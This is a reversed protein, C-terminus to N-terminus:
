GSIAALVRTAVEGASQPQQGTILRGDVEVHPQFPAGASYAAGRKRMEDEISLPLTGDLNGSLKEEANSFGTVRRGSLLDTGSSLKVNVLAATGHCIAAVVKGGEFMDRAARQVATSGPFDFAAGTGGAFFVADYGRLDVSALAPAKGLREQTRPDALFAATVADGKAYGNPNSPDSSPDMPPAGGKITAYDVRLGAREFAVAPQAVEAAWYGTPRDMTAYRGVSTVVILVSRRASTPEKAPRGPAACGVGLAATLTAFAVIPLTKM